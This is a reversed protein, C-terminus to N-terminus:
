APGEGGSVSSSTDEERDIEVSIDPALGNPKERQQEKLARLQALVKLVHQRVNERADGSEENSM